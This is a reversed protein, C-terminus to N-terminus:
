AVIINTVTIVGNVTSDGETKVYKDAGSSGIVDELRPATDLRYADPDTEAAIEATYVEITDLYGGNLYEGQERTVVKKVWIASLSTYGAFSCLSGDLMVVGPTIITEGIAVTDGNNITANTVQCGSAIFNGLGSLATEIAGTLDQITLFDTSYWKRIDDPIVVVKRM